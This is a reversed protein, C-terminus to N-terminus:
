QFNTDAIKCRNSKIRSNKWLCLFPYLCTERKWTRQSNGQCIFISMVSPTNLLWQKRKFPLLKGMKLRYMLSSSEGNTIKLDESSKVDSIKVVPRTLAKEIAFIQNDKSTYYYDEDQSIPTFFYVEDKLTAIGVCINFM